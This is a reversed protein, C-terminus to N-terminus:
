GPIPALYRSFREPDAVQEGRLWRDAEDILARGQEGSLLTGRQRLAVAGFHLAGARAAAREAAELSRVAGARDGIAAAIGAELLLQPARAVAPATKALHKAMRRAEALRDARRGLSMLAARGRLWCHELRPVAMQLPIRRWPSAWFEQTVEFAAAGDGAYLALQARAILSSQQMPELHGRPWGELNAGSYRRVREVEGAALWINSPIGLNLITETWRDGRAEAQALVEKARNLGPGLRGLYFMTMVSYAGSTNAEWSSGVTRLLLDRCAEFNSLADEFGGWYYTVIGKCFSANAVLDPRGLRAVMADMEAIWGLIKRRDKAAEVAAASGIRHAIARAIRSLEGAELAYLWGRAGFEEGRVLDLMGLGRVVTWCADIKTLLDRDIQDEPRETFRLFGRLAVKVKAIAINLLKRWQPRDLKIGVAALVAEVAVMGREVHGSILLEEAARRRLDLAARPDSLEAAELFAAASDGGRGASSLVEAIKHLLARRETGGPARLELVLRYFYVARDFALANYAREAAAEAFAAASERQGSALLHEVMAEPDPRGAMELAQALARHSAVLQDSPLSAATVERIRDHFCTVREHDATGVTRLLQSSRLANLHTLATPGLQSARILVPVPIPRAAVAALELLRRASEELAGLGILIVQDLSLEGGSATVEPLSTARALVGVFFPLGQSESGIREARLRRREREEGDAEGGLLEMALRVADDQALADLDIEVLAGRELDESEARILRQVLASAAGEESRYAVVLLIPPADGARILDALFPASDEDGWHLDDIYVVLPRRQAIRALIERLAAFAQRRLERPDLSVATAPTKAIADVAGLVPFVRTVASASPPILAKADGRPLGSLYRALEDVLTDLAKYPVLEREYCRGELVVAGKREAYELFRRVLASKGVGSRGRLHVATARGARARILAQRLVELEQARGVFPAGPTTSQRGLAALSDFSPSIGLRDLIEAGSPRDEPRPRLLDRALLDLDLPVGDAAASPPPPDRRAKEVMVDAISGFFPPRGTLAEYLIVGFAYWDTAESLTRGQAQEPSMYIPTGSISGSAGRGLNQALGFDLIVVRGSKAEVMVNSPKLDCHLKGARHLAHIGAALQPLAQRLRGLHVPSSRRPLSEPTIEAPPEGAPPAPRREVETPISDTPITQAVVGDWGPGSALESPQARVHELLHPGEVLEMTIFWRDGDSELGDYNILNPHAVDALARFEQKFRALWDADPRILLKLAVTADRDRDRVAFVAGM